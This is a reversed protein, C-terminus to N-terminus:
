ITNKQMILFIGFIIISIGIFQTMSLHEKFISWSALTVLIIGSGVVVPYIINLQIKSLVFLYLLFSIGFLFMGSILWANQIVKPILSFFGLLSFDLTGLALVGKKFFIQASAAILITPILLTYFQMM